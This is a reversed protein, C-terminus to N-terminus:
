KKFAARYDNETAKWLVLPMVGALVAAAGATNILDDAEPSRRLLVLHIAEVAFTLLILCLSALIYFRKFGKSYMRKLISRRDMKRMYNLKRRGHLMKRKEARRRYANEYKRWLLLPMLASLISCVVIAAALDGGLAPLRWEVLYSGIFIFIFYMLFRPASRVYFWRFGKERIIKWRPMFNPEADNFFLRMPSKGM